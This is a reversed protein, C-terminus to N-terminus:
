AEIIYELLAKVIYTGIGEEVIITYGVRINGILGETRYDVIYILAVLLLELIGLNDTKDLGVPM